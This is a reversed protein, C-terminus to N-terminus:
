EVVAHLGRKFAALAHPKHLHTPTAVVVADLAGGALMAEFSEFAKCGFTKVAEERRAAEPDAVAALAFDKSAAIQQCHFGWGIRGLGAVGMRIRRKSSAM